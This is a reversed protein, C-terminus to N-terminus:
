YIIPSFALLPTRTIPIYSFSTIIQPLFFNLQVGRNGRPLFQALISSNMLQRFIFNSSSLTKSFLLVPPDLLVSLVAHYELELLFRLLHESNRHGSNQLLEWRSMIQGPPFIVLLAKFIYQCNGPTGM